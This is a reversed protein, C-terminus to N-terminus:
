DAPISFKITTGRPKNKSINLTAEIGYRNILMENTNKLGIGTSLEPLSTAEIGTGTDEISFAITNTQEKIRITVKGGEELPSIGHKVANEVLPQCIMPPILTQNLHKDIDYEIQLRDGLRKKELKLYTKIFNIEDSLPVQEKDFSELSYRLMDSLRSVMEQAQEPQQMISANISNLTNFLFHPNIQAKLTAIEQKRSLERLEATQKEKHRIRKQSEIINIVAFVLIYEIVSGFLIWARNEHFGGGVLQLGILLEFMFLFIKYWALTYIISAMGHSILKVIWSREHFERVLLFWFVVMLSVKITSSLTMGMIAEPLSVPSTFNLIGANLLTYGAWFFLSLLIGKATIQPKKTIIDTAM